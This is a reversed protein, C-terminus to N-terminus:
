VSFYHMLSVVNKIAEFAKATNLTAIYNQIGLFDEKLRANSIALLIAKVL